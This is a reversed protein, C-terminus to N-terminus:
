RGRRRGGADLDKVSRLEDARLLDLADSVDRDTSGIHDAEDEPGRVCAVLRILDEPSRTVAEADLQVPADRLPPAGLHRATRCAAEMAVAGDTQPNYTAYVDPEVM